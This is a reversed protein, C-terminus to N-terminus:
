VCAFEPHTVPVGVKEVPVNPCTVPVGDEYMPLPVDPHTVPVCVKKMHVETYTVPM